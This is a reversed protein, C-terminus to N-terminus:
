KKMVALEQAMRLKAFDSKHRTNRIMKKTMKSSKKQVHLQTEHKDDDPWGLLSKDCTTTM